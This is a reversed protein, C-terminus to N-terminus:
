RGSLSEDDDDGECRVHELTDAYIEHPKTVSFTVKSVLEHYYAAFRGYVEQGERLPQDCKGCRILM